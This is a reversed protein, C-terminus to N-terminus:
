WTDIDSLMINWNSYNKILAIERENLCIPKIIFKARGFVPIYLNAVLFASLPKISGNILISIADISSNSNIGLYLNKFARKLFCISTSNTSIDGIALEKFGHTSLLKCIFTIYEAKESYEYYNYSEVKNLYRYIMTDKDRLTVIHNNGFLRNGQINLLDQISLRPIGARRIDSLSTPDKRSFFARLNLINIPRLYLIPSGLFLWGNKIFGRYSEDVPFGTVFDVCNDQLVEDGYELMRQFIGRGRYEKDVLTLGSQVSRFIRSGFRYPWKTYTQTGVVRNGELAVVIYSLDSSYKDFFRQEIQVRINYSSDGRWNAHLKSIQDLMWPEYLSIRITGKAM